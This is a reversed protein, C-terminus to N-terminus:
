LPLVWFLKGVLTRYTNIKERMRAVHGVWTINIFYLIRYLDRLEEKQVM